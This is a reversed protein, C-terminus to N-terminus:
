ETTNQAPQSLRNSLLIDGDDHFIAKHQQLDCQVPHNEPAIEHQFNCLFGNAHVDAYYYLAIRYVTKRLFKTWLMEDRCTKKIWIEQKLNNM